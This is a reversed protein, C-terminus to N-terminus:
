AEITTSSLRREGNAHILRLLASTFRRNLSARRQRARVEAPARDEAGARRWKTSQTVLKPLSKYLALSKSGVLLVKTYSILGQVFPKHCVHSDGLATYSQHTDCRVQVAMDQTPHRLSVRWAGTNTNGSVEDRRFIMMRM